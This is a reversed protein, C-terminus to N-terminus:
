AVIDTIKSVPHFPHCVAYCALTTVRSPDMEKCLAQLAHHNDLMDSRNKPNNGSITIENSVGWM